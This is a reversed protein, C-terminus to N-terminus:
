AGGIKMSLKEEPGIVGLKHATLTPCQSPHIAKFKLLCLFCNDQKKKGRFMQSQWDLRDRPSQQPPLPSTPVPRARVRAAVKQGLGSLRLGQMERLGM